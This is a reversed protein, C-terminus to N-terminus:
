PRTQLPERGSGAPRADLWAPVVAALMLLGTVLFAIPYGTQAALFGFGAAGAGLGTDYALNWVASVASYGSRSVREFMLTLTANQTIGFCAGFVLMALAAAPPTGVALILMGAASGLVGPLLLNGSGHRDGYWGALWRSVTTAVVQILLAIAVFGASAGAVALPLFTVVIGGAVTTSVFVVAPRVLAPNRLGAMVGVSAEPLPERGPMGPTALVALLAAVAGAAFVTPYGVQDILWVGLPLAVLSPLGVVVGYLGLGEGRREAPVLQAVMANGVVVTIGFGLGRVLCVALIAVLESSASLALAPSGLLVLGVAFVLREGFRGVLRPTVLEAAVTSLMLAGTALGAGVGGSSTSAYLPVVTLLLNFSAAGGLSALFVLLLPRSLLPTAGAEGGPRPAPVRGGSGDAM